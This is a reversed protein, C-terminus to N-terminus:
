LVGLVLWGREIPALLIRLKCDAVFAVPRVDHAPLVGREEQIEPVFVVFAFAALANSRTLWLPTDTKRRNLIEM